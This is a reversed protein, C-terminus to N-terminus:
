ESTTEGAASRAQWFGKGYSVLIEQGRKIEDKGSWVAMCLEGMGNRREEFFANPRAAVGRYDNIFRAENGMHSADVGVSVGGTNHYLSIDYNSSPRDDVHVEGVYDIIHSRPPIKRAAFLGHQGKAPHGDVAIPKIVVPLSETISGAGGDIRTKPCLYARIDRPVSAHFRQSRAYQVEQPWRAPLKPSM